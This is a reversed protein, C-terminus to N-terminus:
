CFSFLIIWTDILIINYYFFFRMTYCMAFYLSLVVNPLIFYALILINTEIDPNKLIFIKYNYSKDIFPSAPIPHPPDFIDLGIEM